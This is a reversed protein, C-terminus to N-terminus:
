RADGGAVLRRDSLGSLEGLAQAAGRRRSLEVAQAEDGVKQRLDRGLRQDEHDVLELLAIREAVICGVAIREDAIQQVCRASRGRPDGDYRRQSAVEEAGGVPM